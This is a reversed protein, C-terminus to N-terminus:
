PRGHPRRRIYRVVRPWLFLLPRRRERETLVITEGTSRHVKRTLYNLWGEYLFPHKLLRLSTRVLSWRFHNRVRWRRWLGPPHVQRFADAERELVGRAVLGALVPGHIAFLLDRQAAFLVAAHDAAEARIEHAFSVEILTRCYAALDFTRPLFVRAWDFGRERAHRVVSSIADAAVPDRAWAVQVTQLMRAQMFHDRARASCERAFDRHSVVLCKAGAEGAADERRVAMANPPLLRALLAARWPRVRAGPVRAAARYADGYRTIVVVFDFNSDARAARGQARSGYHLIGLATEGFRAGINAALSLADASSVTSLGDDTREPAPSM